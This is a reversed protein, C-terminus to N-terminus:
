RAILPKLAEGALWRRVTSASISEVVGRAVPEVALDPASWRSLPV